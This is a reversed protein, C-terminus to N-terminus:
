QEIKEMLYDPKINNDEAIKRYEEVSKKKGAIVPGIIVYALTAKAEIEIPIGYLYLKGFPCVHYNYSKDKKINSILQKLCEDYHNGTNKDAANMIDLCFRNSNNMVLLSKAKLDVTQICIGLANSFGDQMRQWKEKEVIDFLNLNM